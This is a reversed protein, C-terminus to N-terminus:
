DHNVVLIAQIQKDSVKKITTPTGLKTAEKVFDEYNYHWHAKKANYTSFLVTNRCVRKVENIAQDKEKIFNVVNWFIAIDISSDRLPLLRADAIVRDMATDNGIQRMVDEDVDILVAYSAGRRIAYLGKTGYGCGIDAVVAGRFDVQDLIPPIVRRTASSRTIVVGSLAM